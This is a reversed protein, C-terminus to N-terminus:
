GRSGLGWLQLYYLFVTSFCGTAYVFKVVLAFQRRRSAFPGKSVHTPRVDPVCIREDRTAFLSVSQSLSYRNSTRHKQSKIEM